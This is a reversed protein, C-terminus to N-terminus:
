QQAVPLPDRDVSTGHPRPTDGREALVNIWIGEAHGPEITASLVNFGARCLLDRLNQESYHYYWRNFGNSTPRRTQGVGFITSIFLVGNPKLVRKFERLTRALHLPSLHVLSACSWVGSFVRSRVPIQRLDGHVLYADTTKKAQALLGASLDLGVVKAGERALQRADRGSGCGADLVLPSPDDMLAMFSDREGALNVHAFRNAYQEAIGDYAGITERLRAEEVDLESFCTSAGNVPKHSGASASKGEM